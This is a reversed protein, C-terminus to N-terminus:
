KVDTLAEMFVLWDVGDANEARGEMGVDVWGEKADEVEVGVDIAFRPFGACFDAAGLLPPSAKAFKHDAAPLLAPTCLLGTDLPGSRALMALALLSAPM